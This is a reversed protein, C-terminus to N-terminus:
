DGTLENQIDKHTEQFKEHAGCKGMGIV